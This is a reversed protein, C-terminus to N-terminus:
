SITINDAYAKWKDIDHTLFSTFSGTTLSGNSPSYKINIYQYQLPASGPALRAFFIKGAATLAPITIVDETGDPTITSTSDGQLAVTIVSDDGADTLAIDVVVVLYLPEGTGIDRNIGLDIINTSDAAATIAQEDSFQNHADLYM